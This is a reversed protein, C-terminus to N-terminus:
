SVLNRVRGQLFARGSPLLHTRAGRRARSVNTRAVGQLWAERGPGVGGGSGHSLSRVTEITEDRAAFSKCALSAKVLEISQEALHSLNALTRHRAKDIECYSQRLLTPTYKQGGHRRRTTAVHMAARRNWIPGGMALIVVRSM